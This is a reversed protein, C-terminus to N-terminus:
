QRQILKMTRVSQFLAGPDGIWDKILYYTGGSFVGLSLFFVGLMQPATYKKKFM